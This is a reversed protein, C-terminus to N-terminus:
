EKDMQQAYHRLENILRTFNGPDLRAFIEKELPSWGIRRNTFDHLHISVQTEDYDVITVLDGEDTYEEILECDHKSRKLYAQAEALIDHLKM